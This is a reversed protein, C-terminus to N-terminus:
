CFHNLLIQEIKELQNSYEKKILNLRVKNKYFHKKIYRIIVDPTLKKIKRKISSKFNIQNGLYSNIVIEAYGEFTIADINRKFHSYDEKFKKGSLVSLPQHHLAWHDESNKERVGWLDSFIKIGGKYCACAGITLEIFNDNKFESKVIVEFASQIVEKRYMAWLIQHYDSFFTQANSVADKNIDKDLNHWKYMEFFFGDFPKKFGAYQGVVTSYECNNNLFEEGKYLSEIIIFDDDACLAIKSTNILSITKLIKEAFNLNPLHLYKINLPMIGKYEEESSDCYIVQAELEKFYKISREIYHHRNYTPVVLTFNNMIM